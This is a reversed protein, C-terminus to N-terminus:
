HRGANYQWGICLVCLLHSWGLKTWISGSAPLLNHCKWYTGIHYLFQLYLHLLVATKYCHTFDMAFHCMFCCFYKWWRLPWPYLLSTYGNGKLHHFYKKVKLVEMHSVAIATDGTLDIKVEKGGHWVVSGDNDTDSARVLVLYAGDPMGCSSYESGLGSTSRSGLGSTSYRPAATAQSDAPLSYVSDDRGCTVSLLELIRSRDYAISEPIFISYRTEDAVSVQTVVFLWAVAGSPQWDKGWMKCCSFM